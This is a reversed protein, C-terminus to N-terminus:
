NENTFLAYRVSKEDPNTLKRLYEKKLDFTISVYFLKTQNFDSYHVPVHFDVGNFDKNLFDTLYYKFKLNIGGPFQIGAFASPAFLPTRNSFWESYKTKRGNVFQKQKYHFFLEYSGGGYIYFHNSFSGFKLALPIGLAYTRRKTKIGDSDTIIGINRVGYGSFMGFNDTFDYHINQGFHLFATFRMNTPVSQGLFEVDAFSFIIEGNNQTYVKNQTYVPFLIIASLSLTLILKRMPQVKYNPAKMGM